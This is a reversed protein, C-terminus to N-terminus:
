GAGVERWVAEIMASDLGDRTFAEGLSTLVVFRPLGARVKKDRAM